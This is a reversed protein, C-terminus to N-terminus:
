FMRRGCWIVRGHIRIRGAKLANLEMEFSQYGPHESHFEIKQGPKHQIRKVLFADQLSLAYIGDHRPGEGRERDIVMVDGTKLLPSMSEDQVLCVALDEPPAQLAQVVWERRLSLGPLSAPSHRGSSESGDTDLPPIRFDEHDCSGRGTALWDLSVNCAIALRAMAGVPPQNDGRLYRSLADTSVGAAQAMTKRNRFRQGLSNLRERFAEPEFEANRATM